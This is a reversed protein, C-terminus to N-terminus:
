ILISPLQAVSSHYLPRQSELLDSKNAEFPLGCRGLNDAWDLLAKLSYWRHDGITLNQSMVHNS